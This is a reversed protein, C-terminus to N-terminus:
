KIVELSKVNPDPFKENLKEIIGALDASVSEVSVNGNAWHIKLIM